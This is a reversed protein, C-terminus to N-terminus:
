LWWFRNVLVIYGNGVIVSEADQVNENNNDLLDYVTVKTEKGGFFINTFEYFAADKLKSRQKMQEKQAATMDEQDGALISELYQGADIFKNELDKGYASYDLEEVNQLMEAADYEPEDYVGLKKTAWKSLATLTKTTVHKKNLVNTNDVKFVRFQSVHHLDYIDKGLAAELKLFEATKASFKVETACFDAVKECAFSVNSLAAFFSLALLTNKM